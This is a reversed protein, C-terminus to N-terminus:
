PSMVPFPSDLQRKFSDKRSDARKLRLSRVLTWSNRHQKMLDQLPNESHTRPCIERPGSAPGFTNASFLRTIWAISCCHGVCGNPDMTDTQESRPITKPLALTWSHGRRLNKARSRSLIRQRFCASPTWPFNLRTGTHRASTLKWPARRTGKLAFSISRSTGSKCIFGPM